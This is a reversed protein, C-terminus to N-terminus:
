GRRDFTQLRNASEGLKERLRTAAKDVAGLVQEKGNARVREEALTDSTQCNVAKLGLVYENGLEIRVL